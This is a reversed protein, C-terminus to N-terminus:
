DDEAGGLRYLSDLLSDENLALSDQSAALDHQAKAQMACEIEVTSPIPASVFTPLAGVASEKAACANITEQMYLLSARLAERDPQKGTDKRGKPAWSARGPWYLPPHRRM